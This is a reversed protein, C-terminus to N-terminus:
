CFFLMVVILWKDRLTDRLQRFAQYLHAEVTRTSLELEDAIEHSKKGEFRNMLYIQRRKLPMSNIVSQVDHYLDEYQTISDPNQADNVSVAAANELSTQRKMETRVYDFARHRISAFLYARFSTQVSRYLGQSHFEYFIDSVLDEAIAKSSVFRLAHSCLQPYYMRFLLAIGTTPNEEFAQRIPLETDLGIQKSPLTKGLKFEPPRTPINEQNPPLLDEM